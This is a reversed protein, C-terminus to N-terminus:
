SSRVTLRRRESNVFTDVYMLKKPWITNKQVIKSRLWMIPVKASRWKWRVARWWRVLVELFPLLSELNNADLYLCEESVSSLNTGTHDNRACENQRFKSWRHCHGLNVFFELSDSRQRTRHWETEEVSSINVRPLHDQINYNTDYDNLEDLVDSYM